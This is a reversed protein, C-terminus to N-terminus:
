GMDRVYQAASRGAVYGTSFAAQLNYGGTNADLNLIEGAFYLGQIRRSALTSPEVDDLDIGLFQGKPAMVGIVRFHLGGIRLRQGLPNERGFLEEVYQHARSQYDGSFNLDIDPNKDGEFGLFTEFPINFGLQMMTSGCNHCVRRPLDVGCEVSGDLVFESRRCQPCLWHPPLPNVETIGTLYAVLSSGVSGRSGVLYGDQNSKKVLKHAILYM